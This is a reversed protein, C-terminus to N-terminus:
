RDDFGVASSGINADLAFKGFNRWYRVELGGEEIGSFGQFGRTVLYVGLAIPETASLARDFSASM